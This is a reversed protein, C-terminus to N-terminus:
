TCLMSILDSPADALRGAGHEELEERTRYGWLVGISQVGANRATDMDVSSDGIYVCESAQVKFARLIEFVAAPDPKKPIGARLGYAKDVLGGFIQEVLPGVLHHDKNSLVAIRVGSNQLSALMEPIGDYPRTQDNAHVAYHARFFEGVRSINEQTRCDSPLIRALLMQIGDGVFLKYAEQKHAPFGNAALAENCSRALDALTDLLTGDLDFIALKVM